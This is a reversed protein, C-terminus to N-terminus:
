FIKRLRRRARFSVVLAAKEKGCVLLRESGCLKVCTTLTGVAMMAARSEVVKPVLASMTNVTKPFTFANIRPNTSARESATSKSSSGKMM